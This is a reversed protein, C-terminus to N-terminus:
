TAQPLLALIDRHIAEPSRNADLVIARDSARHVQTLYGQRVLEFYETGRSELRDFGREIRGIALEVPLDLIITLDPRLGGTAIRGVDWISDVDLGGACGQYVVNSLLFRDCVVLNARELAPRLQEAVLQARSAMYLLMESKPSLPIEARHLLIERLAEGLLTGGPDRFTEISKGSKAYHEVLLRIQTSKGSGDMGDLSLFM